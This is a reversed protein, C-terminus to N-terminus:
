PGALRGCPTHVHGYNRRPDYCTRTSILVRSHASYATRPDYEVARWLRASFIRALMKLHRKLRARVSGSPLVPTGYLGRAIVLLTVLVELRPTAMRAVNPAQTMAM